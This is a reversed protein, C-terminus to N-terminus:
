NRAVLGGLIVDICQLSLSDAGLSMRGVDVIAELSSVLSKRYRALNAASSSTDAERALM